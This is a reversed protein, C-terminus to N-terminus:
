VRRIRRPQRRRNRHQLRHRSPLRSRRSTSDLRSSSRITTTCCVPSVAGTERTSSNPCSVAVSTAHRRAGRIFPV